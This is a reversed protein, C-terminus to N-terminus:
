PNNAFSSLDGGVLIEPFGWKKGGELRVWMPLNDKLSLSFKLFGLDLPIIGLGLTLCFSPYGVLDLRKWWTVKLSTLPDDKKSGLVSVGKWWTLVSRYGLAQGGYLSTVRHLSYGFTLIDVWFGSVRSLLCRRWKSLIDLNVLLLHRVGIGYAKNTKCM